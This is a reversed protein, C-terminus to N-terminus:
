KHVEQRSNSFDREKLWYYYPRPFLASGGRKGLTRPGESTPIPHPSRHVGGARGAIAGMRTGPRGCGYGRADPTM